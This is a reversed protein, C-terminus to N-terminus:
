FTGDAQNRRDESMGEDTDKEDWDDWDYDDDDFYGPHDLPDFDSRYDDEDGFDRDDWWPFEMNDEIKLEPM